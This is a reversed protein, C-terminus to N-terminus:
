NIIYEDYKPKDNRIKINIKGNEDDYEYILTHNKAQIWLDSVVDFTERVYYEFGGQIIIRTCKKVSETLQDFRTTGEIRLIVDEDFYRPTKSHFNTLKISNM